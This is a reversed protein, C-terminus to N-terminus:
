WNSVLGSIVSFFPKCKLSICIGKLHNDRDDLAVLKGGDRSCDSLSIM